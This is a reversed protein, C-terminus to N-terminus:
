EGGNKLLSCGPHVALEGVYRQVEWVGNRKWMRTNALTINSMWISFNGRPNAKYRMNSCVFGTQGVWEFGNLRDAQSVEFANAFISPDKCEMISFSALGPNPNYALYSEGCDALREDWYKKAFREGENRLRAYLIV